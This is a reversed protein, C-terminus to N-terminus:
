VKKRAAVRERRSLFVQVLALCAAIGLVVYKAGAVFTSAQSFLAEASAAIGSVFEGVMVGIPALMDMYGALAPQAALYASIPERNLALVCGLGLLVTFLGWVTLLISDAKVTAKVSASELANIKTMVAEVFGDPAFTEEPMEFASVIEDYVTFDAKCGECQDIHKRLRGADQESLTGDMYKMMLENAKSCEM